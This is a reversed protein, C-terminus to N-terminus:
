KETEGVFRWAPILIRQYVESQEGRQRRRNGEGDAYMVFEEVAIADPTITISRIKNPDLDIAELFELAKNYAETNESM